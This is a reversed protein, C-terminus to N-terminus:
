LAPEEQRTGIYSAPGTIGKTLMNDLFLAHEVDVCVIWQGCMDPEIYIHRGEHIFRSVVCTVAHQSSLKRWHPRSNGIRNIQLGM